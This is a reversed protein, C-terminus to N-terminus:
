YVPPRGHRPATQWLRRLKKRARSLRVKVTSPSRHLLRAVECVSRDEVYVLWLGLFDDEELLQQISRWVMGSQEAAILTAEPLTPWRALDTPDPRRTRQRRRQRWRCELRRAISFVWTSVRWPPRYQDLKRLARLLTEQTLDEAADRQGLRGALFHLLRPRLREMLRECSDACGQQARLALQEDCDADWPEM